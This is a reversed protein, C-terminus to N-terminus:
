GNLRTRKARREVGQPCVSTCIGCITGFEPNKKQMWARCTAADFLASRPAGEAWANGTLAGTPCVDVCRKCSGCYSRMRLAPAEGLPMDTVVTGLRVRPGYKRTILQCNRGIWGYGAIAAATKHPFLSRNRVADLTQSAHIRQAAHGAAQIKEAVADGLDNLLQNVRKYEASYRANPGNSVSDMLSDTMRVALSVARPMGALSEPLHGGLDAFGYIITDGYGSFLPNLWVRLSALTVTAM